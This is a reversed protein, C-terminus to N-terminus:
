LRRAQKSRRLPRMSTEAKRTAGARPPLLTRRGDSPKGADPQWPLALAVPELANRCRWGQRYLTAVRSWAATDMPRAKAYREEFGAAKAYDHAFEAYLFALGHLVDPNDKVLSRRSQDSRRSSRRESGAGFRAQALLVWM